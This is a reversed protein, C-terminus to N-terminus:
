VGAVHWVVFYLLLEVNVHIFIVLSNSFVLSFM